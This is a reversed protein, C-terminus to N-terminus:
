VEVERTVVYGARRLAEKHDFVGSYGRLASKGKNGEADAQFVLTEPFDQHPPVNPVASVIVYESPAVCEYAGAGGLPESLKYLRVFGRWEGKPRGMNTATKAM